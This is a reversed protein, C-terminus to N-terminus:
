DAQCEHKKRRSYLVKRPHSQKLREWRGLAKGPREMAIVPAAQSSLSLASLGSVTMEFGCLPNFLGRGIQGRGKDNCRDTMAFRGVGTQGGTPPCRHLSHLLRMTTLHLIIQLLSHLLRM